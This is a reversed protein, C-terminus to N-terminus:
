VLHHKEKKLLQSRPGRQAGPLLLVRLAPLGAALVSSQISFVRQM